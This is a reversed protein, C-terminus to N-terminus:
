GVSQIPEMVPNCMVLCLFSFFDITYETTCWVTYYYLLRQCPVSSFSYKYLIFLCIFGTLNGSEKKQIHTHLLVCVSLYMFVTVVSTTFLQSLWKLEYNKELFLLSVIVWKKRAVEGKIVKYLVCLFVCNQIQLKKGPQQLTM